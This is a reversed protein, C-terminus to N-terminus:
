SQLVKFITRIEKRNCLILTFKRSIKRAIRAIRRSDRAIAACYGTCDAFNGACYGACNSFFFGRFELILANHIPICIALIVFFFTIPPPPPSLSYFSLSCRVPVFSPQLLTITLNYYPQLLTTTLNYYLSYYPQLSTTILNDATSNM